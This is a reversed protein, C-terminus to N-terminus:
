ATGEYADLNLSRPACSEHNRGFLARLDRLDPVIVPRSPLNDVGHLGQGKPLVKSKKEVRDAM